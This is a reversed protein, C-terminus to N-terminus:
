IGGNSDSYEVVARTNSDTSTGTLTLVNTGPELVMFDGSFYKLRPTFGGQKVTKNYTDIEVWEAATLTSEYRMVQGNTQNYLQLDTGAGYLKIVPYAASNGNNVVTAPASDDAALATPLAHPLGTGGGTGSTVNFSVSHSDGLILPNPAVLEVRAIVFTYPAARQPLEVLRPVCAITFNQGDLRAITLTKLGERPDFANLVSQRHAYYQEITSEMILWTIAMKRMGLRTISYHGGDRGPLTYESPRVEPFDFGTIGDAQIRNGPIVYDGFTFQDIM